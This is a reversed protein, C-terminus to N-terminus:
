AASLGTRLTTLLAVQIGVEMCGVILLAAALPHGRRNFVMLALLPCLVCLVMALLTGPDSAQQVLLLTSLSLIPAVISALGARRLREREQHTPAESYWRAGAPATLLMWWGLLSPRAAERRVPSSPTHQGPPRLPYRHM